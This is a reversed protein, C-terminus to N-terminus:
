DVNVVLSVDSVIAVSLLRFFTSILMAWKRSHEQFMKKWKRDRDTLSISPGVIARGETDHFQV